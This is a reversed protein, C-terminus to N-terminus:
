GIGAAEYAQGAVWPLLPEEGPSADYGSALVSSLIRVPARVGLAHAAKPSMLLAAAAGDAIPACMMLTLPYVVPASALVEGATNASLFQANPNMSGHFANKAVVAAFDAASAGCSAMYDRAWRAYVDMFVSHSRGPAADRC